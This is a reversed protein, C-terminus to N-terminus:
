AVMSTESIGWAASSPSPPLGTHHRVLAKCSIYRSGHFISLLVNAIVASFKPEISVYCDSGNGGASPSVTYLRPTCRKDVGIGRISFRLVASILQM